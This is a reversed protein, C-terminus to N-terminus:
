VCNVGRERLVTDIAANIEQKKEESLEHRLKRSLTEPTIGLYDAIEWYYVRYNKVKTRIEINKM